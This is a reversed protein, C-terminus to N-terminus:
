RALQASDQAGQVTGLDVYAGDNMVIFPRQEFRLNGRGDHEVIELKGMGYGMPGRSYYHIRLRYPYAQPQGPIAFCEPGYGTTVDAYLAGGSPLEKSSYYAHGGKGDHIHFDVDNADTEWNLVFRLSPETALEAGATNLRAEIAAREAPAHRIWAAAILGLDERLIRKGGAFRNSPYERALGGLAADFAEAHRGLRLLAYALLRHGTLHDPRQAVGKAYSDAAVGAGAEGLRELREGAFRRMDARSPFLDIISGYVRAALHRQGLAELAEGLAVLAMVDGADENRWRLARAVAQEADAREGSALMAMIEALKGTYPPPGQPKEEAMLRSSESSRFHRTDMAEGDARGVRRRIEQQPASRPPPPPASPAARQEEREETAAAPEAVAEEMEMDNPASRSPAAAGGAEGGIVGGAVGGVVGGEVGGPMDAEDAKMESAMEDDAEPAGGSSAGRAGPADARARKKALENKEQRVPKAPEPRAIMLVPARRQVVQIGKDGVTMIDALARRDIGFRAYDAESELVLLATLDSLVRYETSLAVIERAIAARRTAADAGDGAADRRAELMAIHAGVAARELLPRAVRVLPVSLTEEVVASPGSLAVALPGSLAAARPAGLDAFVLAEDGPQMGDLTDPWVWAAGEIGVKVGSVTSQGLRRALAAAPKGDADLVVGDRPLIGRALRGAMAADRIGGSLLFDLRAVQGAMGAVADRLADGETPGLTPIADSFVVVRGGAAGAQGAWTLAAHLDSAGLPRRALLMDLHAVGFGSAPGQYVETVAQDFAGVTLALDEGHAERLALVLAGLREVQGAFGPARSASTDFLVTLREMREGESRLRPRVRVAVLNGSQLGAIGAPVAAEFDRAPAVGREEMVMPRYTLAKGAGKGAAAGQGLLASVRLHDIAPLGRLPLRYVDGELAQSYSIIIDKTGRAPIPFIRARFENGAEKELLAPDQRRHLFDEYARRAAQREVVEAEQWGTDLRMALRSITAGDPLTIAFRGEMVRDLPNEFRLRLETFALPGEVVARADLSLLRLGTGDAATLSLPPAPQDAAVTPYVMAASAVPGAGLAAFSTQEASAVAERNGVSASGSADGGAPGASSGPVNSSSSCSLTTAILVAQWFLSSGPRQM